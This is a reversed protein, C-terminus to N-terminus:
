LVRFEESAVSGRDLGRGLFSVEAERVTRAALFLEATGKSAAPVEGLKL